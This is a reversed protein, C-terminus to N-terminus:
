FKVILVDRVMQVSGDAPYSPMAQVEPWQAPDEGWYWNAEFGCWRRMFFEKYLHIYETTNHGYLNLHIFDMEQLNYITSDLNSWDNVFSIETEPTYGPTSKIRTIVTTYYSMAESQQLTDKLYCQNDFRAYMIGTLALVLSAAVSVAGRGRFPVAELDDLQAILLVFPMAGGFVMLGHVEESMVYIFNCALPFLALLAVLFVAKLKDERGTRLIRRLALVLSAALLVYYVAYLTGPYMDAEENRVPRFFLACAKGCRQLFTSLTMRGMQDIGQYSSLQLNFKWLFFRNGAFYVAMVGAVCLIQIAARKLFDGNKEEARLSMFDYILIVSLLVPLFAQYVGISAGGLGTALLKAWWPGERCILYAALGMMTLGIMYPHSTFMYSFLAAMTPFAVLLSGLLVCYVLSRIRLLDVLLACVVGVCLISLIGNYLPLSTNGTGFLLGEMWSLLHLMWRGSTITAGYGFLNAIDDQHSLKNFLGMGHAFLGFVLAGLLAAWIQPYKRPYLCEWRIADKKKM